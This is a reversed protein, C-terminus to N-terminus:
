RPCLYSSCLPIARHLIEICTCREGEMRRGGWTAIGGHANSHVLTSRLSMGGGVEWRACVCSCGGVQIDLCKALAAPSALADYSAEAWKGYKLLDV